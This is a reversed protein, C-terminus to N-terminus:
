AARPPGPSSLGHERQAGPDEVAGAPEPAFREAAALGEPQEIVVGRRAVCRGMQRGEQRAEGDAREQGDTADDAREVVGDDAPEAVPCTRAPAPPDRVHHDPRREPRDEEDQDEDRRRAGPMGDGRHVEEEDEFGEAQAARDHDARVLRQQRLHCRRALLPDPELRDLDVEPDGAGAEAKEAAGHEDVQPAAVDLPM